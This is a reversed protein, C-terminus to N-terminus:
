VRQLAPFGLSPELRGGMTTERTCVGDIKSTANEMKGTAVGDIKNDSADEM